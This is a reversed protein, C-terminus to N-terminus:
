VSPHGRLTSTVDDYDLVHGSVANVFAAQEIGLREATGWVTAAAPGSTARAYRLAKATPPERLGGLACALTDLLARRAAHAEAPTLDAPGFGAAFSGIREAITGTM